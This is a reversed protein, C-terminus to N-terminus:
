IYCTLTRALFYGPDDALLLFVFYRAVPFRLVANTSWVIPDSSAWSLFCRFGASAFLCCPRSLHCLYVGLPFFFM